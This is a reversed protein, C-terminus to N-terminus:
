DDIAEAAVELLLRQQPDMEEVERPAVGFYGADFEDIRDLFGGRRTVIRGPTGPHPDYYADIDYRSLPVESVGEEGACLLRWLGDPGPAGPFQCALGIVAVPTGTPVPASM